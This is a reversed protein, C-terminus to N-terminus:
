TPSPTTDAPKEKAKKEADLIAIVEQGAKQARAVESPNNQDITRPNVGKKILEQEFREADYGRKELEARAAAENINQSHATISIFSLFLFLLFRYM